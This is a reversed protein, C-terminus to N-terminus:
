LVGPEPINLADRLFELEDDREPLPAPTWSTM